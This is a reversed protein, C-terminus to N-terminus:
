RSNKDINDLYGELENLLMKEGQRMKEMEHQLELKEKCINLAAFSLIETMSKGPYRKLYSDVRNNITEAAKRIREESEPSNVKMPYQRGAININISQEM